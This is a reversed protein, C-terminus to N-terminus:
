YSWENRVIVGNEKLFNIGLQKEPENRHYKYFVTKIGKSSILKACNLCPLYTVAMVGGLFSYEDDAIFAVTEAHLCEPNETHTNCNCEESFGHNMGISVVRNNLEISCGVSRKLCRSLDQAYEAAEFLNM